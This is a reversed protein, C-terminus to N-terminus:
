WPEGVTEWLSRQRPEEPEAAWRNKYPVTFFTERVGSREDSFIAAHLKGRGEGDLGVAHAFRKPEPFSEHGFIVTGFRGDYVDPWFTDSKTTGSLAQGWENLYRVRLARDDVQDLTRMGPLIGGHVLLLNLEPIQLKIPLRYIWALDQSTLREALYSSGPACPYDTGPKPLSQAARGMADEHNGCVVEIPEQHGSRARFTGQALRLCGLDDYGRDILDGLHVVRDVQHDELLQVMKQLEALHGHTDGIVGVRM